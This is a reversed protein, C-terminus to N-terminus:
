PLWICDWYPYDLARDVIGKRVPNAVIYRAAGRMDEEQRLAHDHFGRAWVPKCCGEKVLVKTSVAKFRNMVLSLGDREGLEVLGHWHDPMLVWCLLRADGWTSPPIMVRCAARANDTDLFCPTREVTTTTLLYIQGALSTRGRRLAQHGPHIKMPFGDGRFYCRGLLPAGSMMYSRVRHAFARRTREGFIDRV